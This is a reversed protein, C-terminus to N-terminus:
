QPNGIGRSVVVHYHSANPFSPDIVISISLTAAASGAKSVATTALLQVVNPGAAEQKTWATVNMTKPVSYSGCFRTTGSGGKPCADDVPYVFDGLNTIIEAKAFSAIKASTGSLTGSVTVIVPVPVYQPGVVQFYYGASTEGSAAGRGAATGASSLTLQPMRTITETSTASGGQKTVSETITTPKHTERSHPVRGVMATALEGYSAGQVTVAAGPHPSLAGVAALMLLRASQAARNPSVSDTM